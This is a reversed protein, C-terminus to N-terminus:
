FIAAYEDDHSLSIRSWYERSRYIYISTNDMDQLRKKTSRGRSFCTRSHGSSGSDKFLM